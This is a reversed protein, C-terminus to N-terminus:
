ISGPLGLLKPTASASSGSMSVTSSWPRVVVREKSCKTRILAHWDVGFWLSPQIPDKVLEKYDVVFWKRLWSDASPNSMLFLKRKCWGPLKRRRTHKM